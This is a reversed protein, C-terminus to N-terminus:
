YDKYLEYYDAEVDNMRRSYWFKADDLAANYVIPALQKMFLDFLGEQHLIGIDEGREDLYYAHIADKIAKKQNDSLNINM